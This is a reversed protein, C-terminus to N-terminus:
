STYIITEKIRDLNFDTGEFIRKNSTNWIVWIVSLWIAQWVMKEKKKVVRGIHQRLHSHAEMPLVCQFGLWDYCLLWIRYAIKCSFFFILVLKLFRVYNATLTEEKFLLTASSLTTRQQYGISYYDGDWSM